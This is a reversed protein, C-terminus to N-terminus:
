PAQAISPPSSLHHTDGLEINNKVECALVESTINPKSVPQAVAKSPTAAQPIKCKLISGWPKPETIFPLSMRMFFWTQEQPKPSQALNQFHSM